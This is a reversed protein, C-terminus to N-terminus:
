GKLQQQIAAFLTQQLEYLRKSVRAATTYEGADRLNKVAAELAAVRPRVNDAVAVPDLFKNM